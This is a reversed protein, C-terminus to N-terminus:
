ASNRSMGTVSVSAPMAPKTSETPIATSALMRSRRATSPLAASPL